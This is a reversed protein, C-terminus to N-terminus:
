EKFIINEEDKYYENMVFTVFKSKNSNLDNEEELVSNLFSKKNIIRDCITNFYFGETYEEEYELFSKLQTSVVIDNLNKSYLIPLIKTEDESKGEERRCHFIAFRGMGAKIKKGKGLL